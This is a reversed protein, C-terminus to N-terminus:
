ELNFDKTQPGSQVSYTLGSQAPDGYKEPIQLGKKFEHSKEYAKRAEPPADPPPGMKGGKKPDMMPNFNVPRYMSTVAVKAPGTPVNDATYKGDMIPANILGGGGEPTFMINGSPIPTGKYKVTGTITGKGGCGGTLLAASLIFAFGYTRKM